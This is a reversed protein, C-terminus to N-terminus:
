NRSGSIRKVKGDPAMITQPKTMEAVYADFDKHQLINGKPKKLTTKKNNQKIATAIYLEQNEIQLQLILGPLGWYMGVGDNIPIEDTYWALIKKGKETITTALTCAYGSITSTKNTVEWDFKYLPRSLVLNKEGFSAFIDGFNTMMLNEKQNKYTSAVINRSSSISYNNNNETDLTEKSEQLASFFSVGDCYTLIRDPTINKDISKKNLENLDGDNAESYLKYHITYTQSWCSVYGNLFAFLVCIIKINM